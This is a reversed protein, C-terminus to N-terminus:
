RLVDEITVHFSRLLMATWQYLGVVSIIDMINGTDFSKSLARFTNESLELTDILEDCAQVLVIDVAPLDCPTPRKLEELEKDALGVSKAIREHHAWEYVSKMKVACRIILLERDRPSITLENSIYRGLTAYADLLPKNNLFLSMLHYPFRENQFQPPIKEEAIWTEVEARSCPHYRPSEQTM